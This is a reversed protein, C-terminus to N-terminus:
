LASRPTLCIIQLFLCAVVFRIGSIRRLGVHSRTGQMHRSEALRKACAITRHSKRFCHYQCDKLFWITYALPFIVAVFMPRAKTPAGASEVVAERLVEEDLASISEQIAREPDM